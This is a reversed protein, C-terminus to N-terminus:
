RELSLDIQKANDSIRIAFREKKLSKNIELNTYFISFGQKEAPRVFNIVRPFLVGNIEEFRKYEKYFLLQSGDYYEIKKIRLHRRDFWIHYSLTGNITEVYFADDQIEFKNKKLIGFREQAAFVSRLQTLELPFQLFNTDEFDQRDGTMFQNMVQNYFVFRNQAIFVKGMRIGM